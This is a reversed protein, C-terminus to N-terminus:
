GNTNLNVAIERIVKKDIASIYMKYDDIQAIASDISLYEKEQWPLYDRKLLEIGDFPDIPDNSYKCITWFNTSHSHITKTLLELNEISLNEKLIAVREQANLRRLPIKSKVTNQWWLDIKSMWWRSHIDSFVGTYKTEELSELLTNWDASYKSVGLRAALVDEGILLGISRIIDDYILSSCKFVSEKESALKVKIRSHVLEEEINLIKALDFKDDKIKKYASIFSMLKQSFKELDGSFNGKTLSFDFLDQSTFDNFYDTIVNQNSMLIIPIELHDLSHKSRSTQAITPADFCANGKGETLRYDLILAHFGANIKATIEKMDSSPDFTEVEFGLSNLDSVRSDPAQDEIYLIKYVM